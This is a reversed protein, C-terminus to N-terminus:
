SLNEKKLHTRNIQFFLLLAVKKKQLAFPGKLWSLAINAKALIGNERPKPTNNSPTPGQCPARLASGGEASPCLTPRM